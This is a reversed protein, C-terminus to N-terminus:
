SDGTRFDSHKNTPLDYLPETPNDMRIAAHSVLFHGSNEIQLSFIQLLASSLHYFRKQM